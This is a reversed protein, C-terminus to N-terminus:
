LLWVTAMHRPLTLRVNQEINRGLQQADKLLNNFEEYSVKGDRNADLVQFLAKYQLNSIKYENDASLQQIMRDFKKESMIGTDQMAIQLSNLDDAVFEKFAKFEELSVDGPPLPHENLANLFVKAQSHSSYSIICKAFDEIDIKGNEKM